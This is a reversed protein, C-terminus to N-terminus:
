GQPPILSTGIPTSYTHTGPSDRSLPFGRKKKKKGAGPLGRTPAEQPTPTNMVVKPTTGRPPQSAPAPTASSRHVSEPAPTEATTEESTVVLPTFSQNAHIATTRM